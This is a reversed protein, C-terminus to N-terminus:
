RRAGGKHLIFDLTAKCSSEVCESVEGAGQSAHPDGAVFLAGKVLVPLYLTSGRGAANQFDM